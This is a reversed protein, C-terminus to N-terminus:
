KGEWGSVVNFNSSSTKASKAIEEEVDGTREWGNALSRLYPPYYKKSLKSFGIFWLEIVRLLKKQPIDLIGRDYIMKWDAGNNKYPIPFHKQYEEQWKNWLAQKNAKQENTLNISQKKSSKDQMIHNDENSTNMSLRVRVDTDAARLVDTDAATPCEHGGHDDNDATTASDTLCYECRIRAGQVPIHRVYLVGASQLEEVWRRVTRDSTAMEEALRTQGPWAVSQGGAYTCLLAYLGKAQASIDKRIMVPKNVVGYGGRTDKFRDAM